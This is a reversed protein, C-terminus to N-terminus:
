SFPEVIAAPQRQLRDCLKAVPIENNVDGVPWAYRQL